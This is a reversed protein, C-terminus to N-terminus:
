AAEMSDVALRPADWPRLRAMLVAVTLSRGGRAPRKSVRATSIPAEAGECWGRGDHLHCMRPM